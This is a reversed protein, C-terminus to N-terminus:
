ILSEWGKKKFKGVKVNAKKKTIPNKKVIHTRKFEQLNFDAEAILDNIETSSDKDTLNHGDKLSDNSSILDRITDSILGVVAMFFGAALILICGYYFIVFFGFLGNSLTGTQLGLSNYLLTLPFHIIDIM